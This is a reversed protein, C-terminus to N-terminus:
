KATPLDECDAVSIGGAQYQYEEIYCCCMALMAAFWSELAPAHSGLADRGLRNAVHCLPEIMYGGGHPRDEASLVSSVLADLSLSAQSPAQREPADCVVQGLGFMGKSVTRHWYSRNPSDVTQTFSTFVRLAAAGLAEEMPPQM